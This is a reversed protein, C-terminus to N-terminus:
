KAIKVPVDRKGVRKEIFHLRLVYFVTVSAPATALLGYMLLLMKPGFIDAFNMAFPVSTGIVGVLTASLTIQAMRWQNAMYRDIDARFEVEEPILAKTFVLCIAYVLIFQLVVGFMPLSRPMNMLQRGEITIGYRFHAAIFLILGYGGTALLSITKDYKRVNRLIAVVSVTALPTLVILVFAESSINFPWVQNLPFVEIGPTTSDGFPGPAIDAWGLFSTLTILIAGYAILFGVPAHVFPTNFDGILNQQIERPSKLWSM